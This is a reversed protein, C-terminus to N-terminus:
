IIEDEDPIHAAEPDAPGNSHEQPLEALHFVADGENAVPLTLAGIIIGSKPAIIETETEGFPDSIFGLVEGALVKDGIGAAMAVLGAAPARLWESRGCHLPKQRARAISGAPIMALAAMVRLIGAVGLQAAREDIRLGEGAEYLLTEVGMKGAMERLSGERTKSSLMVPAGFAQALKLAEPRGPSVRIQPLNIRHIAASHLDIGHSCRAMIETRFLYALRSALSGSASGPFSRNLDRRDPLYRSHNLFGFTNVIPVALLTGAINNLQPARLLRRVIDVGIMEDGHVAASVFMTPGPRGGHVVHLSLMVPTLDPLATMPLAVTARRRPPIRRGAIEFAERREVM